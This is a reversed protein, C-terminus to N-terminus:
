KPPKGPPPLESLQKTGILDNVTTSGPLKHQIGGGPQGFWEAAPGSRVGDIEKEIKYLHEPKGESSAPLSRNPFPEGENALYGGTPDGYRSLNEDGPKLPGISDKGPEFGENPPWGPFRAFTGDPNRWRGQSDQWVKSKDYGSLGLPDVWNVPNHVYGYERTGGALGIPDPSLYQGGDPDYYRHLNYHLGTEQDEWQGQFRLNCEPAPFSQAAAGDGNRRHGNLSLKWSTKGWLNSEAEWVCDGKEDFLEKPTGAQDTVVPYFQGKALGFPDSGTRKVTEKALPYFTGPEYHWRDIAVAAGPAETRWEEAVKHGHWLYSTNGVTASRPAGVREKRTRRGFADYTYRWREGREASVETLRDFDDWEYTWTQPRFGNRVVTKSTVRGRGDYRYSLDGKKELQGHHYQHPAGNSRALNMLADYQYSESTRTNGRQQGRLVELVQDRVDYRYGTDGRISDRVNLLRGSKDWQYRRFLERPLQSSPGMSGSLSSGGAWQGELRGCSDYRQQLTFATQVPSTKPKYQRQVELGLANRDFALTHRNSMLNTALGRSDFDIRTEGSPSMRSVCRGAADYGYSIPLGNQIEEALQGHDNYSFRVETVPESPAQSEGESLYYTAARSLRDCDDYEYEIRATDTAVGVIRDRSDWLFHQDIGDPLRKIQLRGIADRVYRTERGAWDTETSLRGAGDRAYIWHDGMANTIQTLRAAGDYDLSLSHGAPDIVERLLDFSGYVFRRVQGEAGTHQALMGEEDYGFREEGGDPRVVRSLAARPNQPGASYEYFTSFGGADKVSQVRGWVDQQVETRQGAADICALRGPEGYEWKQVAGTSDTESIMRGREDYGYTTTGGDPGTASILNGRGDYAFTSKIGEPHLIETPLGESDFQYRSNRGAWDTEGTLWGVADYKYQTVRGLADTTSQKRELSDWTHLTINGLPDQERVLLNDENFWLVRRAGTADIYETRREGPHYIFRDNYLGEPTRTTVVRGLGDYEYFVRTVGSDRWHTLWGREDYEYFFQGRFRGAVATLGGNKDYSYNVMAHDDGAMAVWSLYGEATTGIEFAVGDSHLIRQLRGRFYVFEIRNGNRDEIASLRGIFPDSKTPVFILTQQTRIDFLRAEEWTGTLKYYPAKLHISERGRPMEFVLRQGDADELLVTGEDESYILRQSWNCIWKRGLIGEVREKGGYCRTLKLPLVSPYEFDTRYDGYDGTAADIPEGLFWRLLRDLKGGKRMGSQMLLLEAGTMVLQEALSLEEDPDGYRVTTLDGFISSCGEQVVANCSTKHGIRALPLGNIFITQSGEIIISSSHKSCQVPDGLRAVPQNEFWVNPSGKAVIDGARIDAMKEGAGSIANGVFGGGFGGIGLALMGVWGATMITTGAAVTAAAGIAVAALGGTLVIAGAILAGVAVGALL